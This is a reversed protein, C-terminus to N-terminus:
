KVYRKALVDKYTRVANEAAVIHREAVNVLKRPDVQKAYHKTTTIVSFSVVDCAFVTIITGIM